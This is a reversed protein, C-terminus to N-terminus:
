LTQAGQPRWSSGVYTNIDALGYRDIDALEFGVSGRSLVQLDVTKFLLPQLSCIPSHASDLIVLALTVVSAVSCARCYLVGILVHVKEELM